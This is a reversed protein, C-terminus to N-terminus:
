EMIWFDNLSTQYEAMLVDEKKRHNAMRYMDTTLMMQPNLAVM